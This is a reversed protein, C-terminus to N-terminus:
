IEQPKLRHYHDIAVQMQYVKYEGVLTEQEYVEFTYTIEPHRRFKGKLQEKFHTKVILTKSYVNKRARKEVLEGRLLPQELKIETGTHEGLAYYHRVNYTPM